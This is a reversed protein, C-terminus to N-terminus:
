QCRPREESTRIIIKACTGLTRNSLRSGRCKPSLGRWADKRAESLEGLAFEQLTFVVTLIIIGGGVQLASPEMFQDM